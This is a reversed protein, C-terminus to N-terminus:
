ITKGIRFHTEIPMVTRALFGISFIREWIRIFKVAFFIVSLVYVLVSLTQINRSVKFSQLNTVIKILFCHFHFLFSLGLWHIFYLVELRQLLWLPDHALEFFFSQRFVKSLQNVIWFAIAINLLILLNNEGWWNNVKFFLPEKVWRM